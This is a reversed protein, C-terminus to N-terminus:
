NSNEYIKRFNFFTKNQQIREYIQNLINNGEENLVKVDASSSRITIVETRSQALSNFVTFTGEGDEGIIVPTKEPVKNFQSRELESLLFNHNETGNQILLEIASEQLKVVDQISQFLRLGYDRMVAAKSTGTIADHHQFLGLNRRALIMKEYNKEFIKIANEHKYERAANYALTFLIECSRLNHELESSLMKYFPRTTFYGSWYAPQGSSFIDSYVFFDGKLTPFNKTRKKIEEFYQKPTGFGIDVNYTEKNKQIYDILKKYNLYQQDFETEKNYRFDDGLPILAVNHPFLSATRSYQELLLQAKEQVNDDTIFQAKVSYETYEGPVKRFDFNLCIFPHPGCSHKISYIDYPMNHTLLSRETDRHGNEEWFPMWTFDGSQHKAFWQKWSYHIRQIITGDFNSGSLLFPVTSGHGFPDISWGVSPTINLNTKLWQHGEILQDLMAYYHANAEDTM